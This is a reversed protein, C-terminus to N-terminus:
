TIARRNAINAVPHFDKRTISNNPGEIPFGAVDVGHSRRRQVSCAETPIRPQIALWDRDPDAIQAAALKENVIHLARDGLRDPRTIVGKRTVRAIIGEKAPKTVVREKAPNAIVRQATTRVIVRKFATRAIIREKAPRTIVREVAAITRVREVAATACVRKMAARVEIRKLTACAVIDQMSIVTGTSRDRTAKDDLICAKFLLSFIRYAVAKKRGVAINGTPSSSNSGSYKVWSIDIQNSVRDITLVDNVETVTSRDRLSQGLGILFPRLVGKLKIYTIARNRAVARRTVPHVDVRAIDDDPGHCTYGAIDIRQLRNRYAARAKSSVRRQDTLRNSDLDDIRAASLQDDIIHPPRDNLRTTQAPVIQRTSRTIVLEKATRIIVRKGAVRAVVLEKAARSAVRQAAARARIRKFTARTMVRKKAARAIVEYIAARARVIDLAARTRVKDIPTGPMVSKTNACAWTIVRDKTPGTAVPKESRPRSAIMNQVTSRAMIAECGPGTALQDVATRAVVRNHAVM